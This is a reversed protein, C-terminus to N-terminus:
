LLTDLSIIGKDNPHNGHEAKTIEKYSSNQKTIKPKQTTKQQLKTKTEQHSKQVRCPKINGHGIGAICRYTGPRIVFRTPVSIEAIESVTKKCEFDKQELCQFDDDLWVCDVLLETCYVM